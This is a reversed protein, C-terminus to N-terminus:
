DEDRRAPRRTIEVAAAVTTIAAPLTLGAALLVVIVVVLAVLIVVQRGPVPLCAGDDRSSPVHM